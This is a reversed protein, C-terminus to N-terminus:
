QQEATQQGESQQYVGRVGLIEPGVPVAVLAIVPALQEGPCGRFAFPSRGLVKVDVGLLQIQGIQTPDIAAYGTMHGYVVGGHFVGDLRQGGVGSIGHDMM